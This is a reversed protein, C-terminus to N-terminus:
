AVHDGYVFQTMYSTQTAGSQCRQLSWGKGNGKFSHTGQVLYPCASGCSKLSHGLRVTWKSSALSGCNMQYGESCSQADLRKAGPNIGGTAKQRAPPRPTVPRWSQRIPIGRLMPSLNGLLGIQLSPIKSHEWWRCRWVLWMGRWGKVGSKTKAVMDLLFTLPRVRVPRCTLSSGSRSL